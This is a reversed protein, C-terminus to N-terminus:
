SNNEETHLVLMLADEVPDHYYNPRRGCQLFRMRSYFDIARTNSARVELFMNHAGAARAHETACSVLQTAIGKRRLANRVALNLIEFEDAALRGVLFGAVGGEAKAVWGIGRSLGERLSEESWIAAEPSEQLIAHLLPVDSASAPEVTIV